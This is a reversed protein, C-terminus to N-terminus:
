TPPFFSFFFRRESLLRNTLRLVYRYEIAPSPCQAMSDRATRKLLLLYHIVTFPWADGRKGKVWWRRAVIIYYSVYVYAYIRYTYLYIYIYMYTVSTVESKCSLNSKFIIRNANFFSINNNDIQHGHLILDSWLSVVNCVNYRISEKWIKKRKMGNSLWIFVYIVSLKIRM